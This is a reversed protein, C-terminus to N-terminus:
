NRVPGGLTQGSLKAVVEAASGLYQQSVIRAQGEVRASEVLYHLTSLQRPPTTRRYPVPGSIVARNGAPDNKGTATAQRTSRKWSGGTLGHM